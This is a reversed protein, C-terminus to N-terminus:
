VTQVKPQLLWLYVCFIVIGLLSIGFVAGSRVSQILAISTIIIVERISAPSGRLELNNALGVMTFGFFGIILISKVIILIIDLYNGEEVPIPILNGNLLLSVVFFGAGILLSKISSSYMDQKIDSIKEMEEKYEERRKKRYKKYKPM